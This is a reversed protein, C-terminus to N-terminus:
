SKGLRSILDNLKAIVQQHNVLAASDMERGKTWDYYAMVRYLHKAQESTLNM